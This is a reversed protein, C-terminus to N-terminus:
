VCVCVGIYMCLCTFAAACMAFCEYLCVVLQVYFGLYPSLCFEHACLFFDSVCLGLYLVSISLKVLCTIVCKTLVAFMLSLLHCVIVSAQEGPEGECLAQRKLKTHWFALAISDWCFYVSLASKRDIYQIHNVPQNVLTELLHKTTLQSHLPERQLKLSSPLVVCCPYAASQNCM